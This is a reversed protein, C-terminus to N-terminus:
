RHFKRLANIIRTWITDVNLTVSIPIDVREAAVKRRSDFIRQQGKEEGHAVITSYGDEGYEVLDHITNETNLTQDSRLEVKAYVANTEELLERVIQTRSEFDPNPARISATFKIIRDIREAWEFFKASELIQELTLGIEPSEDLLGKFAGIFSQFKIDPPKTEFAVMQTSLDIAWQVYHGQRSDMLQEIFDKRDEDYDTRTETTSSVFGLKGVTFTEDITKPLSLRWKRGYRTVTLDPNIAKQVDDAFGRQYLGRDLTLQPKYAVRSFFVLMQPM